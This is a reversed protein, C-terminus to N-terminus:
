PQELDEVHGAAAYDAVVPGTETYVIHTVGTNHPTEWAHARHWDGGVLSSLYSRIAAGHSVVASVEGGARPLSDIASRVRSTLAAWTEGSGGRPLDEGAIFIRHFLEPWGRRIEALTLGEWDGFGLEALDPVVAPQPHLYGATERARGLPSSVVQRFPPHFAALAQAQRVGVEDLGGDTRGQWRGSVNAATRGHRVLALVPQRNALARAVARPRPGLHGADNFSVMRERGWRRVVRTISTNDAFGGVRHGDVRGFTREILTDIVGGHTVVAAKGGPRLRNHVRDIATRIRASFESPREGTRGFPIDAGGRLERMEPAHDVVLEALAREEWEGLDVEAFGPDTIAPGVVEATERARALPSTVVLDFEVNRLRTALAGLQRRGEESLPGDTRGQWVGARNAESEAHRIFWIETSDGGVAQAPGSV